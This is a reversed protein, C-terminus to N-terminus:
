TRPLEGLAELGEAGHAELLDGLRRLFRFSYIGADHGDGWTLALAYNGVQGLNRLELNPPELFRISVTPTPRPGQAENVLTLTPGELPRPVRIAFDERNRLPECVPGDAGAFRLADSDHIGPSLYNSAARAIRFGERLDQKAPRVCVDAAAPPAAM